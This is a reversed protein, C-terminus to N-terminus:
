YDSCSALDLNGEFCEFQFLTLAAFVGVHLNAFGVKVIAWESIVDLSSVSYDKRLTNTAVTQWHLYPTSSVHSPHLKATTLVGSGAVLSELGGKFCTHSVSM